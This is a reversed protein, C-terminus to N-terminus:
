PCAAPTFSSEPFFSSTPDPSMAGGPIACRVDMIRANLFPAWSVLRPQMEHTQKVCTEDQEIWGLLRGGDTAFYTAEPYATPVQNMELYEGMLTRMNGVRGTLVYMDGVTGAANKITDWDYAVVPIEFGDIFIRGDGFLGGNLTERFSRAELSNITIENYQSGDCVSWCTFHDLLCQLLFDPAMIVIDGVMMTQAALAPAMKIRRRIQRIIARIVDVLNYTAAVADGNWTIGAGGATTNGNWDVVISDMSECRQGRFDTYGTAVLSELGDFQGATTSNGSVVMRKLDQIIGETALYANFEREDTIQTGDLRYRPQRECLRVTNRTVDRTPAARRLRGFDELLFECTGFEVSNAPACADSQYGPTPNGGSYEPRVWNIFSRRVECTQTGEWGLWDLFPNTGEFSLSMLDGDGCVDFLGCCGYITALSSETLRQVNKM